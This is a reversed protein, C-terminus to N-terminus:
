LGRSPKKRFDYRDCRACEVTEEDGDEENPIFSPCEFLNKSAYPCGDSDLEIGDDDGVLLVLEKDIADEPPCEPGCDPTKTANNPYAEPTGQLNHPKRM